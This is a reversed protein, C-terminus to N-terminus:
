KAKNVLDYRFVVEIDLLALCTSMVRGTNAGHFDIAPDWSGDFCGDKRQANLLPPIIGNKWKDFHAKGGQFSAAMAYYSAYLNHPYTSCKALWRDDMDNLMTELMVDGSHHGTYVAVLAGVFSLHDKESTGAIGDYTYPFISKGYPDLKMWNPNAAKWAKEILNKGGNLGNGINLGAALSSKLSLTCWGSVSLDNRSPNQDVYDWGLLSYPDNKNDGKNQRSLLMTVAKQAPERLRMDSTMGHAESLAQSAIAHEYNRQGLLGNQKQVSVLYELGKEVVKKYKTPSIHDYGSGLFCLVAYGTMAVDTDGEQDMGPECKIQEDCNVYYKTASWSGNPSQHRKLWRLGSDLTSEALKGNQGYQGLGKKRGSPTRTGFAGSGGGAAGITNFAGTSGLEQAALADLRGEPEPKDSDIPTEASAPDPSNVVVPNTVSKDDKIEIEIKSDTKDIVHEKDKVKEVKDIIAIRMPPQEDIVPKVAFIVAAFVLVAAIHALGSISWGIVKDKRREKLSKDEENVYVDIEEFSESVEAKSHSETLPAM